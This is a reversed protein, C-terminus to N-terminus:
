GNRATTYHRPPGLTPSLPQRSKRVAATPPITRVYSLFARFYSCLTETFSAGEPLVFNDKQGCRGRVTRLMWSQFWAFM